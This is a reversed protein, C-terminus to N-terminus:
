EIKWSEKEITKANNIDLSPDTKPIFLDYESYYHFHLVYDKGFRNKVCRLMVERPNQNKAIILEQESIGKIPVGKNVENEKGEAISYQLGWLVHATYEIAGSEKFSDMSVDAHYSARNFSSSVVITTQYQTQFQQLQEVIYDVKDKVTHGKSTHIKQLYDLIFTSTNHTTVWDRMFEIVDEIEVSNPVYEINYIYDGEILEQKARMVTPNIDGQRIREASLSTSPNLLKVRRVLLKSYLDEAPIEFSLYM